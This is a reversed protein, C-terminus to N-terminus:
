APVLISVPIIAVAQDGLVGEFIEIQGEIWCHSVLGGLTQVQNSGDDPALTAEVSDLLPNLLTSPTVNPALQQQMTHVYMYVEVSLQVRPPLGRQRSYTESVQRLFLAPHGEPPVDAWHVLMRSTTVFNAAQTVKAFLAAYITERATIV